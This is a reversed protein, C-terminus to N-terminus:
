NKTDAISFPIEKILGLTSQLIRTFVDISEDFSPTNAPESYVMDSVFAAYQNKLALSDKAWCLADNLEALPTTYFKPHQNKFEIGDNVIVSSVLSTLNASELESGSLGHQIIQHVDYLHRVLAKDWGTAGNM